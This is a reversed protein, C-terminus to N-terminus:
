SSLWLEFILDFNGVQSKRHKRMKLHFNNFELTLRSIQRRQPQSALGYRFKKYRSRNCPLGLGLKKALIELTSPKARPKMRTSIPLSFIKLFVLAKQTM